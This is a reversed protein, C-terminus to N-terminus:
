HALISKPRCRFKALTPWMVGRWGGGGGGPGRGKGRGSGKSWQTQICDVFLIPKSGLNGKEAILFHLDLTTLM